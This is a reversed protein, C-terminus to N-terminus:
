RTVDYSAAFKGGVITVPLSAPIVQQLDWVGKWTTNGNMVARVQDGPWMVALRGNPGDAIVIDATVAAPDPDNSKARAQAAFEMGTIDVAVGGVEVTLYMLNRDGARIGSLDLCAPGLDGVVCVAAM